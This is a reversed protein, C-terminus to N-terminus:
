MLARMEKREEPSRVLIWVHAVTLRKSVPTPAEAPLREVEWSPHCLREPALGEPLALWLVGGGPRVAGKSTLCLYAGGVVWAKVNTGVVPHADMTLPIAPLLDPNLIVLPKPVLTM